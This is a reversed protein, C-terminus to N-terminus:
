EAGTQALDAPGHFWDAVESRSAGGSLLLALAIRAKRADLETAGVLGHAILSIEGGPFGYTSRFTEGGGTRSAFVVPKSAAIEGLLGLHASPAHGAGVVEVVLGPGADAASRILTPPTDPHLPLIAVPPIREGPRIPPRELPSPRLLIRVRDESVWGLPGLPASSFASPRSAHSKRVLGASHIENDMVVLVGTGKAAPSLAVRAADILNAPGDAGPAAPARMAGTLVVPPGPELLLHLAFASEELTDTGHTVVVGDNRLALEAVAGALRLIHAPGLDASPLGFLQLPEVELDDRGRFAEAALANASLTPTAGTGSDIMAVTGGTAIFGLRRM